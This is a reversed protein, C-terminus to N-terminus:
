LGGRAELASFRQEADQALWTNWQDHPLDDFDLGLPRPVFDPDWTRTPPLDGAVPAGLLMRLPADTDGLGLAEVIVAALAPHSHPMPTARIHAPSFRERLRTSLPVLRSSISVFRAIRRRVDLPGQHGLGVSHRTTARLEADRLREYFHGPKYGFGMGDFPHTIDLSARMHELVDEVEASVLQNARADSVRPQSGAALLEAGAQATNRPWDTAQLIDMGRLEALAALWEADNYLAGWVARRSAYDIGHDAAKRAEPAM